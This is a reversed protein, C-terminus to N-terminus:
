EMGRVAALVETFITEPDASSPQLVPGIGPRGAQERVTQRIRNLQERTLHRECTRGRHRVGALLQDAPADLVVILKPQIVGSRLREYEDLFAPLQEQSLWARAFAASQDFWFDSVVWRVLPATGKQPYSPRPSDVKEAWTEGNLLRAREAVFELEMQWAHSTPDAYFADLRTWDPQEVILEASLAAALRQALRTKGAAIPGTIAVNPRASNLHELLRAVTWRIAPHLM